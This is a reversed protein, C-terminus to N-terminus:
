VVVVLKSVTAPFFWFFLNSNFKKNVTLYGSYSVVSGIGHVQAAQQAEEIKGAEILPTLYLPKGPDGTVPRTVHKPYVNIFSEVFQLYIVFYVILLKHVPKM